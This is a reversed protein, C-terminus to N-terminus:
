KSCNKSINLLIGTSALLILLSSGGYSFFPLSIGTVPITGTVVAINFVAQLGIMTTIGIAMYSGFKDKCKISIIVGRWVFIAFLSIVLIAGLFGIEECIVAFIFDNQQEPLYMYKQKSKGLGLGFLGGSGIAMLSQALQWGEGKFDQWPDIWYQLRALRYPSIVILGVLGAIAVPVLSLIYKMNCGAAYIISMSIGAIVVAASMHPQKLLILVIIGLIALCSLFFLFSEKIKKEYKKQSLLSSFFIIVAIKTIESTQIQVGINIWRTASNRTVGLGPIFVLLLVGIGGILAVLGFRKYVRYDINSIIFMAIIGVIAYILQDKAFYYSDGFTNLAYPASASLVMTVGLALLLLTTIFLILDMQKNKM